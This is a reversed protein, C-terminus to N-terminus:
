EHPEYEMYTDKMDPYEPETPITGLHRCRNEPWSPYMIGNCRSHNPREKDMGTCITRRFRFEGPTESEVYRYFICVQKYEKAKFRICEFSDVKKDYIRKM